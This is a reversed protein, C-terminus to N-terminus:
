CYCNSVVDTRRTAPIGPGSIFLPIHLMEQYLTVGHYYGGHEGFEEGHDSTFALTVRDELGRAKLGDLLEKVGQDLREIDADYAERFAPAAELPPYPQSVRAFSTGDKAFFPDHPEMYHVWLFFTDNGIEDLIAMTERNVDSTTRYFYQPERSGRFLKERLLRYVNYAVLRNAGEPAGLYRAPSLYRYDDFGVSFGYREELNYNTVVAGTKVGKLRLQQALTPLSEPMASLKSMVGHGPVHRSSMISAMAPRTWSSHGTADEFLTGSAALADLTPTVTPKYGYSGLADARLADAVIMIVGTGKLAKPDQQLAADAPPPPTAQLGFVALIAAVGLRAPTSLLQETNFNSRIARGIVLCLATVLVSVGFAAVWSVLKRTQDEAFLDRFIIFQGMILVLLATPLAFGISFRPISRHHQRLLIVGIHLGVGGLSCLAGYFFAAYFPDVSRYLGELLGITLGSAGAGAALGFNKSQATVM